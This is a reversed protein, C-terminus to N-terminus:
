CDTHEAGAEKKAKECADEIANGVDKTTEDVKHGAKEAPGDNNDCATVIFSGISVMSLLILLKKIKM